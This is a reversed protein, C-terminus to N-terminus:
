QLLREVDLKAFVGDAIMAHAVINPHPDDPAVILDRSRKGAFLPLTDIVPVGRARLAASVGAHYTGEFPYDELARFEPLIVAYLPIKAAEATDAVRGLVAGYAALAAGEYLGRYYALYHREPDFFPSLTAARQVLFAYSYAHRLLASEAARQVPEADNIYIFLIAADPAYRLGERRFAELAQETNYNGVGLNLVEVIPEKQGRGDRVHGNLQQELLKVYTSQVPVGWGVTLSDGLALVRKYNPPKAYPIERDRLGLSNIEFDVGMLHARKGPVHVHSRADDVPQKLERAYRWMEIDYDIVLAFYARLGLETVGFGAGLALALALAPGLWRPRATM